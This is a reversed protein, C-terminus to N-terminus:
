DSIASNLDLVKMQKFAFALRQVVTIILLLMFLTIILPFFWTISTGTFLTSLFFIWSEIILACWIYLIREAREMLGIGKMDIGENEARARIYSIMVTVFLLIFGFIYDILGGYILGLIITADSLRDLNSDLFAGSKSDTLTKRAVSGDLVDFIGSIILFFPALWALFISYHITGIAIFFAAIVSCTFGFYSLMNPTIKHVILFAVPHELMGEIRSLQNERKKNNKGSDSM